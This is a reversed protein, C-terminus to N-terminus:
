PTVLVRHRLGLRSLRRPVLPNYPRNRIVKHSTKPKPVCSITSGNRRDSQQPVSKPCTYLRMRKHQSYPRGQRPKRANLGARGRKPPKCTCCVQVTHQPKSQLIEALCSCCHLKHALAMFLVRPQVMVLKSHSELTKCGPNPAWPTQSSTSNFIHGNIEEVDHQNASPKTPRPRLLCLCPKSCTHKGAGYQKAHRVRDNTPSSSPPRTRTRKASFAKFRQKKPHAM